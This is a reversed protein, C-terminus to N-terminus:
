QVSRIHVPFDTDVSMHTNVPCWGSGSSLCQWANRNIYFWQIDVVLLLGGAASSQGRSQREVASESEDHM